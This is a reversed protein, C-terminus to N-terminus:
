LPQDLLTANNASEEEASDKRALTKRWLHPILQHLPMRLWHGRLYLLWLAGPTLVDWCSPHFPRLARTFAMDKIARAPALGLAQEAERKVEDPIPTSLIRDCYRLAYSVPRLLGIQRARELLRTYFDPEVSFHRILGDLDVLDRLGNHFEGELFLHTASHIVMDIPSLVRLCNSGALPVAHEFLPKSESKFRSTLPVIAHHIDVVNRRTIHMMPPLEHMWERYYHQDYEDLHTTVWGSRMMAGEVETLRDRPM